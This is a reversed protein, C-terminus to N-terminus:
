SQRRDGPGRDVPGRGRQDRGLDLLQRALFAPDGSATWGVLHGGHLLLVRDAYTAVQPSHTVVVVTQGLEDVARRLLDLVVEATYPDLAATPEDAFVVEPDAVLARAIAVRQQQGGSLTDPRRRLEREIGVLRALHAVRDRDVRRHDLRLPLAINEAVSLTPVLNLAQFVFGIRRRRLVTLRRRSLSRLDVGGLHVSGSTPRDLGAACQLLTSKGSGSLGMVATLTGRPFEATVSDLAHTGRRRSGYRKTVARLEVAAPM